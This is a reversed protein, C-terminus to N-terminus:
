KCFYKIYMSKKKKCEVRCCWVFGCVEDIKEFKKEVYGKNCCISSCSVLDEDSQGHPDCERGKVGSSGTSIDRYCFDPSYDMYIMTREDVPQSNSQQTSASYPMFYNSNSYAAKVRVAKDYKSKLVASIFRRTPPVNKCVVITCAASLGHCDCVTAINDYVM